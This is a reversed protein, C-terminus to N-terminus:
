RCCPVEKRCLVPTPILTLGVCVAVARAEESAVSLDANWQMCHGCGSGIRRACAHSEGPHVCIGGDGGASAVSLASDSIAEGVGATAGEAGDRWGAAPLVAASDAHDGADHDGAAALLLLIGVGGAGAGGAVPASDWAESSGGGSVRFYNGDRAAAYPVRSYGLLLSFVSAFATWMVLAAITHGAWVGFASRAIEAVLQVRLAASEATHVAADRLSPLSALNMTVYFAAVFLVSLLIARPITKEPRRVESGLFTINYYGWYYYTAMLTAQALGGMAVAISLAPSAPMHWGGTAAAHAFGSVIVGALAAMVGAFLVWALRTVSSLNRYLLATVLLCAGAAAFNGYHLVPLAAVPAHELGPWFWALFSSLGICGSAISLPASFSLQWVYLFSLWNGARDPGYIERLFAYSGGARPFAAGLEAWVLGDAVAIAAGLVWAWVSLRYGAAAIILPLTIFPGVGIMELMNFLVASRLGIRRELTGTQRSDHKRLHILFPDNLRLAARITCQRSTHKKDLSNLICCHSHGQRAQQKRARDRIAGCCLLGRCDGRQGSDLRADGSKRQGLIAARGRKLLRELAEAGGGAHHHDDGVGVVFVARQESIERAAKADTGSQERERTAFAALVRHGGIRIVSESDDAGIFEQLGALIVACLM